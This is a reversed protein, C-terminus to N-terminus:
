LGENHLIQKALSVSCGVKAALWKARDKQEPLTKLMDRNAAIEAYIRESKGRYPVKAPPAESQQWAPVMATGFAATLTPHDAVRYFLVHQFRRVGIGDARRKIHITNDNQSPILMFDDRANGFRKDFTLRDGLVSPIFTRTIANLDHLPFGFAVFEDLYWRSRFNRELHGRQEREILATPIFEDSPVGDREWWNRPLEGWENVAEYFLLGGDRPERPIIDQM